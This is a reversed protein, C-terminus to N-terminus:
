WRMSQQATIRASAQEVMELLENLPIPKRAIPIALKTLASHIARPLTAPSATILIIAHKGPLAREKVLTDIVNDGRMLPMMMDLLVVLPYRSTRLIELAAHGDAAEIVEYGEGELLDRISDRLDQVDDVILVKWRTHASSPTESGSRGVM